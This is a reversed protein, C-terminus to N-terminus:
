HPAKEPLVMPTHWKVNFKKETTHLLLHWNLVRTMVETRIVVREDSDVSHFQPWPPPWMIPRSSSAQLREGARKRKRRRCGNDSHFTITHNDSNVGTSSLDHCNSPFKSIAPGQTPNEYAYLPVLATKRITWPVDERTRIATVESVSVNDDVRQRSQTLPCDLM